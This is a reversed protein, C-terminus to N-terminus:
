EELKFFELLENLTFKNRLKWATNQNARMGKKWRAEEVPKTTEWKIRVVYESLDPDNAHQGMSVAELPVDLINAVRGEYEVQFEKVPVASDVVTGVGVYGKGPICAFVRAGPFLANLSKSYWRGNGGSVFGYKVCDAWARQPGEGITVVFDLDNWEEQTAKSLKREQRQSTVPDILWTRTLYESAGDQFCRFFVANIPVGYTSSLYSVLRESRSDLESSVILMKQNENLSEPPPCGFCDEFASEFDQILTPRELAYQRYIDVVQQYSLGKAWAAYDLAQSVVDRYTKDRKLEIINLNGENDIALLDLRSGFDTIFQRAIIMLNSDLINIDQEIMDELRSERDLPMPQIRALQGDIRWVGMEIPM